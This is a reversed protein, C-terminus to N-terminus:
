GAIGFLSMTTGSAFNGLDNLFAITTVASTSAWRGASAWVFDSNSGGRALYTKQKDTASYDAIQVISYSRQGPNTTNIYAKTATASSTNLMYVSTYNATDGNMRMYVGQTNTGTDTGNIIVVLDRYTNPISGFTVTSASSSLTITQLPIYTATPM